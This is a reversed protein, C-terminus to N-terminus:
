GGIDPHVLRDGPSIKLKKALGGNIELVYRVDGGSSITKESHPEAQEAIRHITGDAFAFIMDLPIYTNRMWMSIPQERGFDFLMGADDAMRRRFMLGKSRAAQSVAVEVDFKYTKESTVISLEEARGSGAAVVVCLFTLIALFRVAAM